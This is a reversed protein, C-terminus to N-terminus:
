TRVGRRHTRSGPDKARRAMAGALAPSAGFPGFESTVKGAAERVLRWGGGNRSVGFPEDITDCWTFPRQSGEVFYAPLVFDSVWIWRSEAGITVKLAYRDEQCPDSIERAIRRGDPLPLWLNCYPDARLELVEHSLTTADNIDKAVRCRGFPLGLTDDHFGDAGPEDIEDLISMVAVPVGPPLVAYSRVPWPEEEYAEAWQRMQIEVARVQFALSAKDLASREICAIEM